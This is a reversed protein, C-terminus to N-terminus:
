GSMQKQKFPVECSDLRCKASRLHQTSPVFTGNGRSSPATEEPPFHRKRPIPAGTGLLLCPRAHGTLDKKKTVRTNGIVKAFIRFLGSNELCKHLFLM